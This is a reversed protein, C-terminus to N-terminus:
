QEEERPPVSAQDSPPRVANGQLFHSTGLRHCEAPPAEPLAESVPPSVRRDLSAGGPTRTGPRAATATLLWRGKAQAARSHGQSM